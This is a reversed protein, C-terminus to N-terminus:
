KEGNILSRLHDSIMDHIEFSGDNIENLRSILKTIMQLLLPALEKEKNTDFHLGDPSSKDESFLSYWLDNIKKDLSQAIEDKDVISSGTSENGKEDEEDKLLPGFVFELGIQIIVKSMRFVETRCQIHHKLIVM